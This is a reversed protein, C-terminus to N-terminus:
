CPKRNGSYVIEDIGVQQFYVHKTKFGFFAFAVSGNEDVTEEQIHCGIYKYKEGEAKLILDLPACAGLTILLLPLILLKKM